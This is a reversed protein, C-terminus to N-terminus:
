RMELEDRTLNKYSLRKRSLRLPLALLIKKIQNNSLQNDQNNTFLRVSFGFNKLVNPLNVFSLDLRQETGSPM